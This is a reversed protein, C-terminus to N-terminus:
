SGRGHPLAVFLPQEVFSQLLHLYRAAEALLRLKKLPARASRTRPAPLRPPRPKRLRFGWRTSCGSASACGLKVGYSRRLRERLPAGDWLHGVLGFSDPRDRLDAEPALDRLLGFM